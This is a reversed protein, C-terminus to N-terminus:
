DKQYQKFFNWFIEAALINNHEPIGRPYCHELGKLISFQLQQNGGDVTEKFYFSMHRKREKAEFNPSLKLIDTMQSVISVLFTSAEFGEVTTPFPQNNNHRILKPDKEGIMMLTPLPHPTPIAKDMMSGAGGVAAFLDSLEPIARSLTFGMGNSFGTCYFRKADVKFNNKLHDAILRMFAVDDHPNQGECLAAAKNSNLWYNGREPKGTRNDNFCIVQATPFVTIIGEQDGLEKWGSINYYKKGSGGGGHLMFVVPYPTSSESDYSKPLHVLFTRNIGSVQIEYNYTNGKQKMLEFEQAITPTTQFVLLALFIIAPIKM